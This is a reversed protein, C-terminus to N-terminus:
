LLSYAYNLIPSYPFNALHLALVFWDALTIHIVHFTLENGPNEPNKSLVATQHFISELALNNDVRTKAM